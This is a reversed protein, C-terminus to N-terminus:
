RIKLSSPLSPVLTPCFRWHSGTSGQSPGRKKRPAPAMYGPMYCFRQTCALNSTLGHVHAADLLDVHGTESNPPRRRGGGAATRRGHPPRATAM